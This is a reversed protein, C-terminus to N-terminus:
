TTGRWKAMFLVRLRLWEERDWSDALAEIDTKVTKWLYTPLGCEMKIKRAQQTVHFYCSIIRVAGGYTDMAARHLASSGDMVMDAPDPENFDLLTSVHKLQELVHKVSIASESQLLALAVPKAAGKKTLKCVVCLVTRAHLVNFTTDIGLARAGRLNRLMRPSTFIAAFDEVSSM